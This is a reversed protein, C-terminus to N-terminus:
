GFLTGVGCDDLQPQRCLFTGLLSLCVLRKVLGLFAWPEWYGKKEALTVSEWYRREIERVVIRRTTRTILIAHIDLRFRAPQTKRALAVDAEFSNAFNDHRPFSPAYQLATTSQQLNEVYRPDEVPDTRTTHPLISGMLASAHRDIRDARSTSPSSNQCASSNHSPSRLWPSCLPPSISSTCRQHSQEQVSDESHLFFLPSFSLSFCDATPLSSIIVRSTSNPSAM